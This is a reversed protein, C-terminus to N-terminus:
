VGSKTLQSRKRRALQRLDEVRDTEDVIEKGLIEELVDELSVVGSLGGYEDLVVFLHMRLELFSLLLKDLTVSELVFHVPRMIESLKTEDRDAAIEELIARRLVIGVMDENHEDYVPIRSYHWFDGQERAQQVTLDASLSFTVTRPTMIDEVRKQDLSLINRISTEEYPKISGSRRSLSVVARIDDETTHPGRKEPTLLRTLAAGVVIVPKLCWVLVTLPRAIVPALPRAYSVGLTKPIVESLVLIAVTFGAAFVAMYQPGFVDAFAAGAVAAGATNAVTNLTLVATIPEEIHQRLKFLIEGSRRGENRLREIYSWPISYLVAETVSCSASIFIAFTVALILELM